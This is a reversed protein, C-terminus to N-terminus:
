ASAIISFQKLVLVRPPDATTAPLAPSRVSPTTTGTNVTLEYNLDLIEPYAATVVGYTRSTLDSPASQDPKPQRAALPLLEPMSTKEGPGLVAVAGAFTGAYASLSVAGSSVYAGLPSATFGNQVTITWAGTSGAVTAVTYEHMCEAGSDATWETIASAASYDWVGISQGVLPGVVSNVTAVGSAYATVRTVETPWPATDRWGGGSGGAAQPLPLDALLVVDVYQATVGTLNLNNQGPMRATVYSRATALITSALTRDGGLKTVAVDYSAPGRVAPFAYAGEVSATSAEAWAVVESWNGGVPPNALRDLLRDRLRTDNDEDAGGTIGSSDITASPSLTGIAASNWTLVTGADQDTDVGSGVAILEVSQGSTYSGAAVTQYKQGDPSSAQWGVPLNVTGTCIITVYGAASGAPRKVVGFVGALLVLADGTATLPDSDALAIQNNAIAISVRAAYKEARIYHESGPLVNAVLGRRAFAYLVANLIRDRTEDQTPYAADGVAPLTM